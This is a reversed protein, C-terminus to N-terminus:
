GHRQMWADVLERREMPSADSLTLRDGDIELTVSVGSHRGVWGRVTAILPPLSGALTVVLQAWELASGRAGAPLIGTPRAVDNVPLRLLEQQLGLALRAREESDSDRYGVVDVRIERM